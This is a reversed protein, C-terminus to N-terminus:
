KVFITAIVVAAQYGSAFEVRHVLGLKRLSSARATFESSTQANVAILRKNFTSTLLAILIILERM